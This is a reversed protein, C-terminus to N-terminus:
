RRYLPPKAKGVPRGTVCDVRSLLAPWARGQSDPGDDSWFRLMGALTDTDVPVDEREVAPERDAPRHCATVSLTIALALPIWATRM